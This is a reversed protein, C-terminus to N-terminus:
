VLCTVLGYMTETLLLIMTDMASVRYNLTEKLKMEQLTLM